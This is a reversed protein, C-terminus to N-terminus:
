GALAIVTATASPREDLVACLIEVLKPDFQTGARRRLEAIAREPTSAARYPRGRPRLPLEPM